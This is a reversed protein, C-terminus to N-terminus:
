KPEVMNLVATFFGGADLGKLGHHKIWEVMKEKSGWCSGPTENYLFKIINHMATRNDPDARSFAEFLDNTIVATVFHGPQSGEMVYRSISDLTHQPVKDHYNTRDLM